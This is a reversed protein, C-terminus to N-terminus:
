VIIVIINLLYIIQMPNLICQLVPQTIHWILIFSNLFLLSAQRNLSVQQQELFLLLPKLQARQHFDLSILSSLYLLVLQQDWM